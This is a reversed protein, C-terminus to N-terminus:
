PGNTIFVRSSITWAISSKLAPRMPVMGATSRPPQGWWPRLRFPTSEWEREPLVREVEGRDYTDYGQTIISTRRSLRAHM